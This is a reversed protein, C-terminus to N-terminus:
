PPGPPWRSGARTASRLVAPGRRAPVGSPRRHRRRSHPCAPVDVDGRTGILRGRAPTARRPAPALRPRSPQPPRHREAIHRRQVQQREHHHHERQPDGIREQRRPRPPRQQRILRHGAQHRDPQHHRGRAPHDVQRDPGLDPQPRDQDGPQQDAVHRDSAATTSDSSAPAPTPTKEHSIIVRARIGDNMAVSATLESSAAAVAQTEPLSCIMLRGAPKAVSPLPWSNPM